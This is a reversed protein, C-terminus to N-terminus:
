ETCQFGLGYLGGCAIYTYDATLTLRRNKRRRQQEVKAFGNHYSVVVKGIHRSQQMHRFAEVVQTGDFVRYPLPYLAGGRFLKMMEGFLKQTLRPNAQM